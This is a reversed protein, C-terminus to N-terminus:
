SKPQNPGADASFCGVRTFLSGTTDRSSIFFPFGSAPSRQAMWLSFGQVDTFGGGSVFVLNVGITVTSNPNVPGSPVGTYTFMASQASVRPVAIACTLVFFAVLLLKKM